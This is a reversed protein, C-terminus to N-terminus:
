RDSVGGQKQLRRKILKTVIYVVQYIFCIPLVPIFTCALADWVLIELFAEMGYITRVYTPLIWTYVDYGFISCYLAHIMILIYPLLSIILITKFIKKKM